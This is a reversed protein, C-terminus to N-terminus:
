QGFLFPKQMTMKERKLRSPTMGSYNKVSHIFHSQDYYDAACAVETLSDNRGSQLLRLGNQFRVIGAFSKPSIGVHRRFLKELHRSSIGLKGALQEVRGNGGSEVIRRVACDLAAFPLTKEGALRNASFREFISIRSALDGAEVIREWLHNVSDGLIEGLGVATDNFRSAKERLLFSAAHPQFKVGFMRVRGQAAIDYHATNQGIFLARPEVTFPGGGEARSIREGLHFIIESHGDPLIRESFGDQFEGCDLDMWWYSHIFGRFKESSKVSVFNM